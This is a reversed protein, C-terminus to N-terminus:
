KYYARNEVRFDIYELEGFRPKLEGRRDKEILSQIVGLTNEAPFRLSFYFVPGDHSVVRVEQLVPDEFRIEGVSLGSEKIVRFVSLLNAMAAVNLPRLGINLDESSYDAVVRILNGEASPAPEFLIGGADFWFCREPEARKACWVGVPQREEVILEITREQYDKRIVLNKLAPLGGISASTDGAVLTDPWVLLNQTGLIRALMRGKTVREEVFTLIDAASLRQNGFVTIREARFLSSRAVVWTAGFVVVALAIIAFSWRFIKARRRRRHERDSLYSASDTM